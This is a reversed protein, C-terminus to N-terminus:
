KKFQNYAALGGAAAAGTGTTMGLTHFMQALSKPPQQVAKEADVRSIFNGQDDLFGVNPTPKSSNDLFHEWKLREQIEPTEGKIIADKHGRWGGLYIKGTAPDRIAPAGFLDPTGGISGRNGLGRKLWKTVPLIV